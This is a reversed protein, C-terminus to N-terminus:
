RVRGASAKGGSLEVINPDAEWTSTSNLRPALFAMLTDAEIKSGIMEHKKGAVALVRVGPRRDGDRGGDYQSVDSCINPIGGLAEAAIEASREIWALPVVGDKRGGILLCDGRGPVTTAENRSAPTGACSGPWLGRWAAEPVPWKREELLGAAVTTVSGFVPRGHSLSWELAVTGGQSFGFLHVHGPNWGLPELAGQLMENLMKICASLSVARRIENRMPKILDGESTLDISEFWSHGLDMPLEYPGRLSLVATQPLALKKGFAAFPTPSDGLGHFCILLSSDCGDESPEYCFGRLQSPFDSIRPKQKRLSVVQKPPKSEAFRWETGSPTRVCVVRAEDDQSLLQLDEM